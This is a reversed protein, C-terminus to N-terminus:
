GRLALRTVTGDGSVVILENGRYYPFCAVAGALSASSESVLSFYPQGRRLWQVGTATVGAVLGARVVAAALYPQSATSSSTTVEALVGPKFELDSWYLNGDSGIGAVELGEPGKGLWSLRPVTLPNHPGLSPSWGLLKTNRPKRASWRAYYCISKAPFTLTAVGARGGLSSFLLAARPENDEPVELECSTPLLRPGSLFQLKEGTWVGVVPDGTDRAMLPCLWAPGNGLVDVREAAAYGTGEAIFSALQHYGGMTPMAVVMQGEGDTALSTVPIDQVPLPIVEDTRPRFNFVEGSEFGVFIDASMPAWCLARVIAIRAPLRITAAATPGLAPAARKGVARVAFDADSVVAPAWAASQALMASVLNGLRNEGPLRQRMKAAIGTLARDRLDDRVGALAPRDALRAVENYFEAAPSDNGPAGLFEDAETVVQRVKPVAGAQTHLRVLCIACPIANEGPRRDWGAQYYDLALDPRKARGLLMEGAAYHGRGTAVLRMAAYQYEAVALDEEGARRLLDGALEHDGRKRYIALARDIEGAAEFERAAALEDGLKAQYIVAADHHLGGQALVAAALRFDALLKGNIFAARRYDGARTALEAQRRYEKELERFVESRSFWISAPGSGGGLINALSYHTAHTPLQDSAGPVAGRPLDGGIPLARRLAREVEGAQFDKLLERLAADQRGLLSESLRPVMSLAAAMSRAGARALWGMHLAQGLWAMGKGLGYAASGLVRAPLGSAPPRPAETGIGEGGAEIVADPPPDPRDLVIETLREALAPPEPLTQWPHRELQDVMLVAGLPVPEDPAFELVRDGPLFVLGRRRVLGEAEDPLLSPVLDADVPLLLNDALGRLRIVGAVPASRALPDRSAPPHWAKAARLERPMSEERAQAAFAQWGLRTLKLLFGDAVLYVQPLPEGLRVLLPVLDETRHSPLLLATAPETGPRHKLRFPTKM